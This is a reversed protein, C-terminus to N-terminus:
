FPRLLLSGPLRRIRSFGRTLPVEKWLPACAGAHGESSPTFNRFSLFVGNVQALSVLPKLQTSYNRSVNLSSVSNCKVPSISLAARRARGPGQRRHRETGM